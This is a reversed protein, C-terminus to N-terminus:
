QLWIAQGSLHAMLAALAAAILVVILALIWPSPRTPPAPEAPPNLSNLAEMFGLPTADGPAHPTLAPEPFAPWLPFAPNEPLNPDAPFAHGSPPHGFLAEAFSLEPLDPSPSPGPDAPALSDQFPDFLGLPAPPLPSSLAPAPSPSSKSRATKSRAPKAPSAAAPAPAAATPPSSPGPTASQPLAPAPPAPSKPNPSDLHQRFRQLFGSPSSPSPSRASLTAFLLPQLTEPIQPTGGLLWVALLALDRASPLAGPNSPPAPSDAALCPDGPLLNELQFRDPQTFDLATPWTRLKLAFPPWQSLPLRALRSPHPLSTESSPSSFHLPILGPSRWYLPLSLAAAAQAAADIQDLILLAEAPAMAPRLRHLSHLTWKGPIEEVLTPSPAAPHFALPALLHPHRHSALAAWAKGLPPLIAPSPLLNKPPFVQVNLPRRTARQTGRLRYPDAADPRRPDLTLDDRLSEATEAAEPLHPALPLKPLFPTPLLEPPATLEPPFDRACREVLTRLQELTRPHHPKTPTLISNLLFAFEPPLPRSALLEPSLPTEPLPGTLLQALLRAVQRIARTEASQPDPNDSTTLGLDCLRLSLDAPRPGSLSLGVHLLHVGSLLSPHHALAALAQLLQRILLLALWPPILPCRALWSDLREGDLFASVFYNAGEDEGGDLVRLINPHRLTAARQLLQQFSAPDRSRDPPAIAIHLEVFRLLHNDFALCAVEDPGRWVEITAGQRDQCITYHRFTQLSM